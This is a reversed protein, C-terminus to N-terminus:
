DRSRRPPALSSLVQVEASTVEACGLTNGTAESPDVSCSSLLAWLGDFPFKGLAMIFALLSHVIARVLPARFRGLELNLEERVESTTPSILVECAM